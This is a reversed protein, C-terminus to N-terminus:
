RIKKTLMLRNENDVRAYSVNDMLQKVFHIGVGGLKRTLVTGSMDPPGAQLPDFACGEDHVEACVEEPRYLLRVKIESSKGDPYGYSIVNNLVEDLALNLQNIAESPLLHKAGFDEVLAVIKTMEELRNGIRIEVCDMRYSRASESALDFDVAESFNCSSGM